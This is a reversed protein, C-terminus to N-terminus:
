HSCKQMCHDLYGNKFMKYFSNFPVDAKAGGDVTVARMRKVTGGEEHIM